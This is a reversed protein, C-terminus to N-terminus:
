SKWFVSFTVNAALSFGADDEEFAQLGRYPCKQDGQLHAVEPGSPLGKIANILKRLPLPDGLGRRFDVWTRQTLFPPLKAYDFPDPVGPLL